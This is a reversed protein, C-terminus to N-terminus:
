NASDQIERVKLRHLEEERADAKRKYYFNVLLGLTGLVAGYFVAAENTFWWGLGVSFAGAQTVKSALSAVALDGAHDLADQKDM